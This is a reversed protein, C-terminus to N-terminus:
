HDRRISPRPTEATHSIGPLPIVEASHGAAFQRDTSGASATKADIKMFSITVEGLEIGFKSTRARNMLVGDPLLLMWDDFTVHLTRTDSIKLDLVYNWNLANGGVIGKAVGIVDDARGEYSGDPLKRIRWQRTSKEGDAFTFYEDLTLQTGDWKGDIDVVFQRKVTGFRDEYLGWARTKGAFYEELVFPQSSKAFDEPKMASCGTLLFLGLLLIASSKKM